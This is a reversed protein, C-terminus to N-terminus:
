SPKGLNRPYILKEWNVAFYGTVGTMPDTLPEQSEVRLKVKIGRIALLNAGTVPTNMKNNSSDYYSITWQTLGLRLPLAGKSRAYRTLWFDNPNKTSSDSSGLYYAISDVTGGFTLAGTFAIKTSDAVFIKSGTVGYGAKTLDFEIMRAIFVAETQTELNMTNEYMTEQVNGQVRGVSLILVGFVIAAGIMDLMTSM